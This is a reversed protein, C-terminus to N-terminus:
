PSRMESLAPNSMNLEPAGKGSFSVVTATEFLHKSFDVDVCRGYPM